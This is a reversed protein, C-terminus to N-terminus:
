KGGRRSLLYATTLIVTAAGGVGAVLVAPSVTSLAPAKYGCKSSNKETLQWRGNVCVYYDYGKCITQGESCEPPPPKAVTVVVKNSSSGSAYWDGDFKVYIVYQGVDEFKIYSSFYGDEGTMVSGVKVNNAYINVTKASVGHWAGLWDQIDLHGYAHVSDGIYISKPAVVFDRFRTPRLGLM